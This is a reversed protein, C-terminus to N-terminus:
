CHGKKKVVKYSCCLLCVSVLYPDFCTDAPYYCRRL